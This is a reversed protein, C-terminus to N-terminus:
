DERTILHDCRKCREVLEGIGRALGTPLTPIAQQLAAALVEGEEPAMPVEVDEGLPARPTFGDRGAPGIEVGCEEIKDLLRLAVRHAGLGPARFYYLAPHILNTYEHRTINM